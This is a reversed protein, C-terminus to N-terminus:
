RGRMPCQAQPPKPMQWSGDWGMVDADAAIMLTPITIGPLLDDLDRRNLMASKMAHLMSPRHAARFADMAAQARDPQAAVAEAGLLADSLGKTVVSNAGAVRYLLVLPAVKTLRERRTLAHVPTGITTLTRVRDAHCAALAIGVHGGWANGVWDVPDGIDFADLV